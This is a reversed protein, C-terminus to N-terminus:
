RFILLGGGGLYDLLDDDLRRAIVRRGYPVGSADACVRDAADLFVQFVQRGSPHPAFLLAAAKVGPGEPRESAFYGTVDALTLMDVIVPRRRRSGSAGGFFAALQRPLEPDTVLFADRRGGGASGRSRAGRFFSM